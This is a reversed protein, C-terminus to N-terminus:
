SEFGLDFGYDFPSEDSTIGAETFVEIELQADPQTAAFYIIQGDYRIVGSDWTSGAGIGFGGGNAVDGDVLSVFVPINNLGRVRLRLVLSPLSVSYQTGATAATARVTSRQAM